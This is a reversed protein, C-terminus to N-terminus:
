GVQKVELSRILVSGVKKPEEGWYPWWFKWAKELVRIRGPCAQTQFVKESLRQSSM